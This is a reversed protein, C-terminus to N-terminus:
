VWRRLGELGWAAIGPLDALLKEKLMKDVQEPAHRFEVQRIRRWIGSAANASPQTNGIILLHAQSRFTFSNQRMLNAEIYEGSVLKNLDDCRWRGREPLENVLCFRKGQLGAMWQRHQQHEGAVREGSLTAGYDGLLTCLTESFTGKGAGRTGWLFLFTEDRCDGTMALGVWEQMYAAIEDRKDEPYHSLSEYVFTAWLSSPEDSPAAALTKTIRDERTAPRRTWTEADLLTGDPFAVHLHNADFTDMEVALHEEAHAMISRVTSHKNLAKASTKGEVRSRVEAAISKYIEHTGEYWRGGLYRKWGKGDAHLYRDAEEREMWATALEMESLTRDQNDSPAKFVGADELKRQLANFERRGAEKNRPRKEAEVPEPESEPKADVGEDDDVVADLWPLDDATLPKHDTM